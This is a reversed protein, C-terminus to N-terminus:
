PSPSQTPIKTHAAARAIPTERVGDGRREWHEAQRVRRGGTVIDGKSSPRPAKASAGDAEGGDVYGTDGLGIRIIKAPRPVHAFPKRGEICGDESKSSRRVSLILPLSRFSRFGSSASSQRLQPQRLLILLIFAGIYSWGM